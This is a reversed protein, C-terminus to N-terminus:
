SGHRRVEKISLMGTLAEDNRRRWIVLVCTGFATIGAAIAGPLLLPNRGAGAHEVPMEPIAFRTPDSIPTSTVAPTASPAPSLVWGGATAGDDLPDCTWLGQKDTYQAGVPVTYEHNNGLCVPPEQAGAQTAACFASLVLFLSLARRM